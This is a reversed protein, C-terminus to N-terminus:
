PNLLYQKIMEVEGSVRKRDEKPVLIRAAWMNKPMDQQYKFFAPNIDSLNRIEDRDTSYVKPDKPKLREPQPTTSVMIDTNLERSLESELELIRKFDVNETVFNNVQEEPIGVVTLPKKKIREFNEYGSMRFTIAAKSLRRDLMRKLLDGARGPSSKLITKVEWDRMDRMEELELRGQSIADWIARRMMTAVILSPKNWYIENHAMYWNNIFSTVMNKDREEICLGRSKLFITYKKQPEIDPRQFGIHYLDRQLYDLKDVGIIDWIIEKLNTEVVKELDEVSFGCERLPEEYHPKVTELWRDDHTHGTLAQEIVETLHGYANHPDDHILSVLEVRKLDDMTLDSNSNDRHIFLKRFKEMTGLSHEFRTHKAGPYVVDAVDLQKVEDLRQFAPSDIIPIYDSVDVMGDIPVRIIKEPVYTM